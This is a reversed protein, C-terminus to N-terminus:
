PDYTPTPDLNARGCGGRGGGMHTPKTALYLCQLAVEGLIRGPVTWGDGLIGPLRPSCGPTM